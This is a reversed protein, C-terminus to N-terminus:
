RTHGSGRGNREQRRREQERRRLNNREHVAAIRDAKEMDHAWQLRETKSKISVLVYNQLRM